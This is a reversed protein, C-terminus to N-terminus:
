SAKKRVPQDERRNDRSSPQPNLQQRGNRVVKLMEGLQKELRSLMADAYDDAENQIAESEMLAKQRMQGIEQQLKRRIQEVETMTKRQLTECEQQVQRRLQNGQMEAQQIIGTEDLIQAARRQANEIIKQAYHQAESIIEQKQSLIQLAKELSEPISIRILDLQNILKDGDVLTPGTFWFLQPNNLIIDELRNIERQMQFSMEEAQPHAKIQESNNNARNNQSIKNLM